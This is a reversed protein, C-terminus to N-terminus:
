DKKIDMIMQTKAQSDRTSGFEFAYVDKVIAMLAGALMLLLNEVTKPMETTKFFLFYILGVLSLIASYALINGRVNNRGATLFAADRKRADARDAVYMAELQANQQMIATQFAIQMQQNQKIMELAEGPSKAGSIVQATQGIQEAVAVSKEGVGFFRLLTPAFQALGLAISIPDM